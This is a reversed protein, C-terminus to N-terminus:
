KHNVMWAQFFQGYGDTPTGNGDKILVFDPSQWVDWTWGLVSVGNQDAFSTITAVLPAGVTGASDQDGTETAIVPIGAELIGQVESFIEPAFNPQAWAPTGWTSGYAPYPHWTAAMQNLSDVPEHSLWGSLDATYSVSGILVVNSAGTARVANIMAQYSAVNWAAEVNQWNGGNSSAPYGSFSGNEGFMMYAWPDGSFDFDLYPENFLEFMVAPNAYSGNPYGFTNAISTWFALSHDADAMQSQLLPCAHGPAAWHLDLIVYLGAANAEEVMAEIANKYNNGPDAHHFIGDTDTCILGLWSDENLPIRVVNAKWSGIASWNPNYGQGFQGGSPDEPDWGQIAASEFASLNVGRLQVTAEAANVFKNGSVAIAFKPANVMVVTTSQSSGGASQCALAYTTTSAPSVVLSGRVAQTGTWGGSATCSAANVTSWSLTTSGGSAISRAAATLTVTPAPTVTITATAHTSGGAGSCSLIYTTTRPPTVTLRGSSAKAGTWGPGGAACSAANSSSWNLTVWWGSSISGPSATLSVTPAPATATVTVSTSASTTGGIGTCTLTYATTSAPTVSQSGSTAEAGNWGGSSTCSNANGSSWNLTASSGAPISSPNATLSVTPAPAAPDFFIANVIANIGSTRSVVMQVHGKIIWSAYIGGSFSSVKQTNLVTQTAADLVTISEARGYNDWDCLYLSIKHAKGDSLNLDIVFASYAYFTSAIRTQSGSATQLARPDATSTTWTYNSQGLLDFNAYAPLNSVDNSIVEGNGGYKGTWTGQTSIDTGTFSAAAASDFFIANVLGNPGATSSVQIQINGKVIWAAYIGGSFSSFTQSNLVTQSVADVISITEARGSNDWDCLYLSIKHANGDTLTLGISFSTTSEFASAIRAASGSGTQLARPDSTSATWSYATEGTLNLNAYGPINSEGNAIVEGNGGYSGTWTGLTTTDSGSYSATAPASSASPPDFFIANVVGNIGATDTVQIQVHGKINWVAYIGDTFSSFSQTSLVTQSAADVITITEARGYDDWDCLYLSISHSNGDTLNLDLVFTSYAYYTAAVRASSGSSQQLARPDSTETTWVYTSAGTINLTAYAPLSSGEGAIVQGNAGYKGSWSGQTASDADSYIASAAPAAELSLGLALAFAALLLWSTAKTNGTTGMM